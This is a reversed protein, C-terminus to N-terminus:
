VKRKLENIVMCTREPLLSIDGNNEIVYDSHSVFFDASLQSSFRDKIKQEDIKDRLLIRELRLKEDAIVSVIVDCLKDAGAEFLTPADLLIYEYQESLANIECEINHNIFPYITDDLLKLKDKDAFVIGGLRARDLKYDKDFCEPFIKALKKNCESGDETVNRAVLDCNIIGFGHKRFTDSVTTKGAGSQGTLGVIISM